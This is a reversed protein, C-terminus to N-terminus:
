NSGIALSSMPDEPGWRRTSLKAVHVVVALKKHPPLSEPNPNGLKSLM